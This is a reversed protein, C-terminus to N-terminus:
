IHAEHGDQLYHQKARDNLRDEEYKSPLHDKSVVSFAAVFALLITLYTTKM